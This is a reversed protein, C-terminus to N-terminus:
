QAAATGYFQDAVQKFAGHAKGGEGPFGAHQVMWVTILNRRPNIEMNTAFAGGHGFNGGGTDLGFGYSKEVADGTQKTTMKRASAESLIRVGDLAGGNLLMQCFLTDRTMPKQAAIDAFGVTEVALVKDKSAVLAVAGALTHSGVFPQLAAAISAPVPKDDALTFHSLAVLLPATFRLVFPKM